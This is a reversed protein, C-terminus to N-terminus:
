GPQKNRIPTFRSSRPWDSLGPRVRTAAFVPPHCYDGNTPTRRTVKRRSSKSSTIPTRWAGGTLDYPTFDLDLNLTQTYPRLVRLLRAQLVSPAYSASLVVVVCFLHCFLLLSIVTRTSESPTEDAGASELRRDKSRSM